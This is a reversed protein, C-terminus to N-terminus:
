IQMTFIDEIKNSMKHTAFCITNNKRKRTYCMYPIDDWQSFEHLHSFIIKLEPQNLIDVKKLVQVEFEFRNKM